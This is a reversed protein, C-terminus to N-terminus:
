HVRIIRIARPDSPTGNPSWFLGYPKAYVLWGSAVKVQWGWGYFTARHGLLSVPTPDRGIQWAPKGMDWQMLDPIEWGGIWIVWQRITKLPSGLRNMARKYGMRGAFRLVFYAEEESLEGRQMADRVTHADM